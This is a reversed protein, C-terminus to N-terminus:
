MGDMIVEYCSRKHLGCRPRCFRCWNASSMECANEQVFNIMIVNDFSFMKRTVPRKHPSNM